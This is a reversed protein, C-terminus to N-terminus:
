LRLGSVYQRTQPLLGWLIDSVPADAELALDYGAAETGRAGLYIKYAEKADPFAQGLSIICNLEGRWTHCLSDIANKLAVANEPSVPIHRAGTHQALKAGASRDTSTFAVRCGANVLAAILEDNGKECMVLVRLGPPFPLFSACGAAAGSPTIKRRVPAGLLGRRYEDMKNELYNDAM